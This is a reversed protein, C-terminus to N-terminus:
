MQQKLFQYESPLPEKVKVVLNCDWAQEPGTLRGGAETYESNSFYSGKGADWEVLVQHGHNVLERVGQPTMAVRDERDKIERVIGIKM